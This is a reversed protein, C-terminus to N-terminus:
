SDDVPQPHRPPRSGQRPRRNLRDFASHGGQGDRLFTAAHDNPAADHIEGISLGDFGMLAVDQPCAKGLARLARQAGLAMEDNMCFLASLKKNCARKFLEITSRYGGDVTSDGAVMRDRRFAAHHERLARQFGRFRQLFDPSSENLAILGIERHGRQLLYSAAQYAGAENSFSVTSIRSGPRPEMHLAVVPRHWRREM